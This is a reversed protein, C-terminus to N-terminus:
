GRPGWGNANSDKVGGYHRPYSSGAGDMANPATRLQESSPLAWGGRSTQANSGLGINDHGTLNQAWGPLHQRANAKWAEEFGAVEGEHLNHLTQVSDVRGDSNLNRTLTHGKNKLGRSLRHSAKGTSTDAEKSEEVTVGDSGSRRTKSSSYYAGNAGGYTVTSSQFTFSHGRPQSRSEGFRNYDNRYQLLKSKREEAEDDPDEVYPEKSSRGHKRPNEKKDDDAEKNEDDSDIEEIIPGRSKKPQPAENELYAPPHMNVFPNPNSGFFGSQFMGGFPRTFFPDDFPDRGGFFGSLLSRHQQGFGGFGGFDDFPDGFNFFPDGNGRRGQM